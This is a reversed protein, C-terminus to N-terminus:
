KKKDGFDMSPGDSSPKRSNGYISLGKRIGIAGAGLAGVAPLAGTIARKTSFKSKADSLASTVDRSANSDARTMPGIPGKKRLKQMNSVASGKTGIDGALRFSKGISKFSNGIGGLIFKGVGGWSGAIKNMEDYYADQAIKEFDIM